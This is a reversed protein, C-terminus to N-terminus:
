LETLEGLPKWLNRSLTRYGLTEYLALAADNFEWVNLLIRCAGHQQAWQEGAAMLQRGLGRRRWRPLIGLNDIHARVEPVMWPKQTTSELRITVFGVIQENEEALFWAGHGARVLEEIFTYPPPPADTARFFEPASQQHFALTEAMVERARPYDEVTGEHIRIDAGSVAYV